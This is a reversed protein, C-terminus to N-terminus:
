TIERNEWNKVIIEANNELSHIGDLELKVCSMNKMWEKQERLNPSGDTEYKRNGELFKMHSQHMDGGELVREGFREIARNHVRQVRIDPEVYLFVMMEFKDDFAYHFSSMSGSMVFHEYPEIDNSLRSIKEKKTYMETYPEETDQKWIYDDVDFYPYGLKEAVVRGLTTKGSGSPGIIMIGTSMNERKM